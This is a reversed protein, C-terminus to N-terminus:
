GRWRYDSTVTADLTVLRYRMRVKEQFVRFGDSDSEVQPLSLTALKPAGIPGALSVDSALGLCLAELFRDFLTELVDGRVRDWPLHVEIDFGMTRDAKGGQSGLSRGTFSTANRTVTVYFIDSNGNLDRAYLAGLYPYVEADFTTGTDAIAQIKTILASKVAEFQDWPDM